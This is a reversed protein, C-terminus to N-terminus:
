SPKGIQGEAVFLALTLISCQHFSESLVSVSTSPYLGDGIGGGGIQWLSFLSQVRAEATFTRHSVALSMTCGSTCIKYEHSIYIYIYFLIRVDCLVWDKDNYFIFEHQIFFHGNIKIITLSMYFRQTPLIHLERISSCTTCVIVLYKTQSM